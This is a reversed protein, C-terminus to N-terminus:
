AMGLLDLQEGQTNLVKSLQHSSHIHWRRTQLCPQRCSNSDNQVISVEDQRYRHYFCIQKSDGYWKPGEVLVAGSSRLKKELVGDVVRPKYVFLLMVIVSQYHAAFICM